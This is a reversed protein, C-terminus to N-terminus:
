QTRSDARKALVYRCASGCCCENEATSAPNLQPQESLSRDGGPGRGAPTHTHYIIFLPSVRSLARFMVGRMEM